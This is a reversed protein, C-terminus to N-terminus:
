RGDQDPRNPFPTLTVRESGLASAPHAVVDRALRRETQRRARGPRVVTTCSTSCTVNRRRRISQNGLGCALGSAPQREPLPRRIM